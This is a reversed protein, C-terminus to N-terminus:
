PSPARALRFALALLALLGLALMALVTPAGFHAAAAASSLPAAARAIGQARAVRGNVRATTHVGFTETVLWPRVVTYLGAGVGFCGVGIAAAIVGPNAAILGLGLAQLLLPLMLMLTRSPIAGGPRSLWLRGPLQMVGLAALALSAQALTIGRAVLLPVLLTVLSLAGFSASVFPLAFRLEASARVKELAADAVPERAAVAAFAPLVLREQLWVACLLVVTLFGLAGRWGLLEVAAGSLPLFVTSALGGLVTVRSIATLRRAPDDIARGLIAFASEYLTLAIAVGLGAFVLYLTPLDGVWSWASLVVLALASGLRLVQRGAGRDLARGIAPALLASLLLALSFAGAVAVQSSGLEFRMPVQIVAFAYYLVGWYVCQTTGLALVARARPESM